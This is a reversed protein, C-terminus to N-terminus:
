LKRYKIYRYIIRSFMRLTSYTLSISYLDKLVEERSSFYDHKLIYKQRFSLLKLIKLDEFEIVKYKERVYSCNFLKCTLNKTTCGKNSQFTCMRCCGNIKNNNLKRHLICQNNKFDCRDINCNNNDIIECAKDYVYEIRKKRNKINLGEIIYNLEKDALTTKFFTKKYFISKYMSLKNLLNKAEKQTNITVVM